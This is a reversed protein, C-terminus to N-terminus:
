GETLEDYLELVDQIDELPNLFDIISAALGPGLLTLGIDTGYMVPIMESAPFATVIEGSEEVVVRLYREGNTGIDRGFKREILLRGNNQRVVRDPRKAAREVLKAIESAQRFKSKHLFVGRAIHRKTIHHWAKKTWRLAVGVKGKGTADVFNVPDSGCYRYLNTDRGRFGIPDKAVWRGMGPDYDRAGFRVLKTAPDYLGGAFGFPQFGPNTDELVRGYEDYSLRQAVAGTEANVVLRVSGLHDKVVRHPVGNRVIFGPAGAEDNAYVFHMVTSDSDVEAIPRLDEHYLWLRELTGDVKRGIRRGLGDIVYEITMVNAGDNLDARLLGGLEDYTLEIAKAGDTRRFLDGQASHTYEQVGHTKIRDQEDFTATATEVGDVSVSKRNGNVDYAYTTIVGDREAEILRGLEDYQYFLEHEVGDITETIHKVRGLADRELTQSFLEAGNVATALNSLEAFASYGYSSSVVGASAGEVFGTDSNRALTMKSSGSSAGVTLGDRDYSYSVTSVGDVTTSAIQFNEDYDLVVDGDITGSWSVGLLLPGDRLLEVTGTGKRDVSAIRGVSDYAYTLTTSALKMTKLYGTGEDYSFAIDQGDSRKVKTLEFDGAENYVYRSEGVPLDTPSDAGQVAPPQIAELLNTDDRYQFRHAPRGPPTISLVNDNNDLEFGIVRGDARIQQEIRGAPDRLFEVVRGLADTRSAFMGDEGYALKQKRSQGAAETTVLQLRGLDDYEFTMTPRGPSVVEVPRALADYTVTSTRGEASTSTLTRNKRSYSSTFVRGNVETEDTWTDLQLPSLKGSDDRPGTKKRRLFTTLLRGAPTKTTTQVPNLAQAGFQPDAKLKIAETSGDSSNFTEATVLDSHLVRSQDPLTVERQLTGSKVAVTYKSQLGAPTTVTVSHGGAVGGRSFAEKYGTPDTVSTLFGSEEYDFAYEGGKPDFLNRLLGEDYQFEIKRGLPDSVSTAVRGDLELETRQGFQAEIAGPTGDKKREVKTTIGNKDKLAVLLGRDDYDLELETVGTMADVTAVHKGRNDFKYLARGDVSPILNENQSLEPLGPAVRFVSDVTAIYLAGDRGFAIGDPANLRVDSALSGSQLAEAGDGVVTFIIGDPTVRRIRNNKQDAIYLSGDAALALGRPENLEAKRAEGTDGSFGPVGTGAVTHIIGDLTVKRVRHGHRESIYVTGDSAVIVGSPVNLKAQRAPVEDGGEGGGAFRIFKGGEFKEVQDANVIYLEERPGLALGDLDFLNAQVIPDDDAPGLLTQVSGDPSIKRVSNLEFDSVILSGDDTMAVGQPSVLDIDGLDGPAGPGALVTVKGEADIRLIRGGAGPDNEQDDTVIISGDPAVVVGDPTGVDFNKVTDKIELALNKASRKDGWGFFITQNAPDYAHLVDLSLGGLEYATADWVGLTTEFNQYVLAIDQGDETQAHMVDDGSAGFMENVSLTGPYGYAIWIRATQPGQLVRGFSDRGDWDIVRTLGPEPPDWFTAEKGAIAVYTYVGVLNEPVEEPLLPIELEYAARYATTRDSQYQLSYPTGIVGITKAVAQTEVMAAGRRSPEDLTRSFDSSVSPAVAGPPPRHPFLMNWASFHTVPGRWLETGPEYRQALRALEGNTIGLKDLAREDEANGDGDLDLAARGDAESVISVVRGAGSAQWQAETPSYYGLPVPSGVPLGLFNEVYM